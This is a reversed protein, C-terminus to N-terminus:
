HGGLSTTARLGLRQFPANQFSRRNPRACLSLFRTSQFIPSKVEISAISQSLGRGAKDRFPPTSVPRLLYVVSTLRTAGVLALLTFIARLAVRRVTTRM